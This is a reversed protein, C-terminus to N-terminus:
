WRLLTPFFICVPGIGANLPTSLAYALEIDTLGFQTQKELGYRAICPQATGADMKRRLSNLLSMYIDTDRARQAEPERRFWQFARKAIILTLLMLHRLRLYIVYRYIYFFQGSHSDPKM